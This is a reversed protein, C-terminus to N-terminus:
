LFFYCLQLLKTAAGQKIEEKAEQARVKKSKRPTPAKKEKKSKKAKKAKKSKKSKKSKKAKKRKKASSDSGGDSSDDSPESASSDSSSSDPVEEADPLHSKRKVGSSGLGKAKVKDASPPFFSTINKGSFGKVPDRPKEVVFDDDDKKEKLLKPSVQTPQSMRFSDQTPQSAAGKSGKSRQSGEDDELSLFGALDGVPAKAAAPRLTSEPANEREEDGATPMDTKSVMVDLHELLNDKDKLKVASIPGYEFGRIPQDLEGRFHEATVMVDMATGALTFTLFVFTVQLM